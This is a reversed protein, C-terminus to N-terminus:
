LFDRIERQYDIAKGALARSVIRAVAPIAYSEFYRSLNHNTERRKQRAHERAFVCDIISTQIGRNRLKEAEKERRAAVSGTDILDIGFGAMFVRCYHVIERDGETGCGEYQGSRDFIFM